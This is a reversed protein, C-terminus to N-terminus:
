QIDYPVKFQFKQEAVMAALEDEVTKMKNQAKKYDKWSQRLGDFSRKGAFLGYSNCAVDFLLATPQEAISTVIVSAVVPALCTVALKKSASKVQDKARECEGAGMSIKYCLEDYRLHTKIQPATLKHVQQSGSLANPLPYQKKIQAVKECSVPAHFKPAANAPRAIKPAQRVRWMCQLNASVALLSLPLLLLKKMYDEM